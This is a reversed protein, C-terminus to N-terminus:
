GPPQPATRKILESCRNHSLDLQDFHISPLGLRHLLLLLPVAPAM